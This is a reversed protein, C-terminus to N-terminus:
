PLEAVKSGLVVLAHRLGENETVVNVVQCNYSRNKFISGWDPV